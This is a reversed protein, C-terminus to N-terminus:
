KEMVAKRRMTPTFNTENALLARKRYGSRNVVSKNANWIRSNENNQLKNIQFILDTFLYTQEANIINTVVIAHNLFIELYLNKFLSM